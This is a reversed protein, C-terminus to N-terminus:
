SGTRSSEKSFTGVADTSKAWASLAVCVSHASSITEIVFSVSLVYTGPGAGICISLNPSGAPASPSVTSVLSSWGLTM